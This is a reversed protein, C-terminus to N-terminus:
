IKNDMKGFKKADKKAQETVAQRMYEKISIGNMAAAMAVVRHETFTLWLKMQKEAEPLQEEKSKM